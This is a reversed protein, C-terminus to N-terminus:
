TSRSWCTVVLSFLWRLTLTLTLTLTLLLVAHTRVRHTGELKPCNYM